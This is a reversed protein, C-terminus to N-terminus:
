KACAGLWGRGQIEGNHSRSAARWPSSRFSGENGGSGAEGVAILDTQHEQLKIFFDTSRQSSANQMGKGSVLRDWFFLDRSEITSIGGDDLGEVIEDLSDAQFGGLFCLAVLVFDENPARYPFLPSFSFISQM